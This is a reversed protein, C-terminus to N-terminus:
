VVEAVIERKLAAIKDDQVAIQGYLAVIWLRDGKWKRPNFTAHLAQKTCIELPPQLEEVLGPVAITKSGGNAPKGRADSKWIALVAGERSYSSYYGALAAFYTESAISDGYGSGSDYGYGSGDDYGYGSDYGYGYRGSGEFTLPQMVTALREVWALSFRGRDEFRKAASDTCEIVATVNRILIAPAAPGIKCINSPGNAALGVVSKCDAGWYVVMRAREIRMHQADLDPIGYGFFVGRETTVVVPVQKTETTEDSM